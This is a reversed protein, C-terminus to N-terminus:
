RCLRGNWCEHPKTMNKPSNGQGSQATALQLLPGFAPPVGWISQFLIYSDLHLTARYFSICCVRDSRPTTAAAPVAVSPPASAAAAVAAVPVPSRLRSRWVSRGRWVQSPMSRGLQINSCFHIKEQNLDFISSNQDGLCKLRLFTMNSM